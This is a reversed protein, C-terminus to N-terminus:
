AAEPEELKVRGPQALATAAAILTDINAQTVRPWSFGKDDIVPDGDGDDAGVGHWSLSDSGGYRSARVPPILAEFYDDFRRVRRYGRQSTSAADIHWTRSGAEDTKVVFRFWFGSAEILTRVVTTREVSITPAKPM